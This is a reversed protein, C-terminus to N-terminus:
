SRRHDRLLYENVEDVIQELANDLAQLDRGQALDDFEPNGGVVPRYDAAWERRFEEPDYKECRMYSTMWCSAFAFARSAAKVTLITTRLCLAQLEEPLGVLSGQLRWEIEGLSKGAGQLADATDSNDFEDPYEDRISELLRRCTGAERGLAVAATQHLQIQLARFPEETTEVLRRTLATYWGTAGLLALTSLLQIAAAWDEDAAVIWQMLWLAVAGTLVLLLARAFPQKPIITSVAATNWPPAGM